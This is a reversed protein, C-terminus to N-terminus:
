APPDELTRVPLTTDSFVIYGAPLLDFSSVEEGNIVVTAYGVSKGAQIEKISITEPLHYTCAVEDSTNRIVEVDENAKLTLLYDRNDKLPMETIVQKEQIWTEKVYNSFLYEAITIADTFAYNVPQEASVPRAFNAGLLVIAYTTDYRTVTTALCRGAEDTFGTKVGKADPYYFSSTEVTLSVTYKLPRPASLNTKPITYASMSIIEQFLPHQLAEKLILMMDEATSYHNGNHLGHTNVCHTNKAGLQAARHNMRDVFTELDGGIYWGVTNAADCASNLITACLLDWLSIREGQQLYITVGGQTNVDHFLVPDPITVMTNKPDECNELAILTTLIKTLSAPYMITSANKRYLIRGTDLNVVLAAESNISDAWDNDWSIITLSLFLLIVVLASSVIRKM